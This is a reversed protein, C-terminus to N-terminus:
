ARPIALVIAHQNGIGGPYRHSSDLGLVLPNADKVGAVAREVPDIEFVSFQDDLALRVGRCHLVRGIQAHGDSVEIDVLAVQIDVVASTQGALADADGMRDALTQPDVM